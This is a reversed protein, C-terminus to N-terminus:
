LVPQDAWATKRKAQTSIYDELTFKGTALCLGNGIVVEGELVLVRMRIQKKKVNTRSAAPQAGCFSADGVGLVVIEGLEVVVMSAAGSSGDGM